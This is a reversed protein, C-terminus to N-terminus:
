DNNQSRTARPASHNNDCTPCICIRLENSITEDIEEDLGPIHTITLPQFTNERLMDLLDNVAENDSTINDLLDNIKGSDRDAMAALPDLTALLQDAESDSLDVILVPVMQGESVDARLHGDILMLGETTQRAIVADAFGIDALSGRLADQQEIPHTRWNKPNPLLESAKVRKLEIIRDKIKM